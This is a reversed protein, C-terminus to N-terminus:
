LDLRGAAGTAVVPLRDHIANMGLLDLAQQRVELLGISHGSDLAADGGVGAVLAEQLVRFAALARTRPQDLRGAFGQEVREGVRRPVSLLALAPEAAQPDDADIRGDARLAQTVALEDLAQLLGVDVEVALDQGIEGHAVGARKRLDDLRRLAASSAGPGGRHARSRSIPPEIM